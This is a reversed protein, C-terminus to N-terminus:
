QRTHYFTAELGNEGDANKTFKLKDCTIMRRLKAKDKQRFPTVGCLMEYLLIGVSWWDVSQMLCANAVQIQTTLRLTPTQRFLTTVGCLMEYLLTGMSWWDVFRWRPSICRVKVTGLIEWVWSFKRSANM